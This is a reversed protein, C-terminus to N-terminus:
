EAETKQIGKFEYKKNTAKRDCEQIGAYCRSIYGGMLAALNHYHKIVVQAKSEATADTMKEESLKIKVKQEHHQNHRFPETQCEIAKLFMICGTLKKSYLEYDVFSLQDNNLIEKNVNDIIEFVETCNEILEAIGDDGEMLFNKIQLYTLPLIM